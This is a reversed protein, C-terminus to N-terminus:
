YEHDEAWFIINEPVVADATFEILGKTKTKMYEFIQNARWEANQYRDSCIKAIIESGELDCFTIEFSFPEDGLKKKIFKKVKVELDNFVKEAGENSDYSAIIEVEGYMGM